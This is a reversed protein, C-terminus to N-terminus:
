LFPVKIHFCEYKKDGYEPNAIERVSCCKRMIAIFIAYPAIKVRVSVFLPTPVIAALTLIRLIFYFACRPMM